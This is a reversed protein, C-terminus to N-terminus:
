RRRFMWDFRKSTGDARTAQGTAWVSTRQPEDIGDELVEIRMAEVDGTVVGPGLLADNQPARMRFELSCEGLGHVLALKQDAPLPQAVDFLRSYHAQGYINCEEGHLEVTGLGVLLRDVQITWGDSTSLPHLLEDTGQVMVEVSGPLPRNDSPLCGTSPLSLAALSAALAPARRM